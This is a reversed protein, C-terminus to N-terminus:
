TESPYKPGPTEEAAPKVVQIMHKEPPASVLISVAKSGEVENKEVTRPAGDMDHFRHFLQFDTVYDVYPREEVFDILVSKRAKGGFSPDGGGPFAWPSLFRTIEERSKNAYFAEDFGARLRVKFEVWVEEFWPNVVRPKVYPPLRKKLFAEIEKRARTGIEKIVSGGKGLVIGRQSQREVHITAYILCRKTEEVFRDIVVASQYPIEKHTLETLQKRVMESVFFREAQESLMDAPYLMPGEPLRSILEELFLEVGDGNKASLPVVTDMGELSSLEAMVPLMKQKDKVADVKNLLVIFPTGTRGLSEAIRGESGTLGEARKATMDVLWVCVDSELMASEASENMYAGLSGTPRHIGPTDLFIVQANGQTHVALIRNRTTQPKATVISITEGLIRNLLTSKGVNPKGLLAAFGCRTTEPTTEPATEPTPPPQNKIEESM